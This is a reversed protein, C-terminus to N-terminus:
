AFHRHGTFLCGLLQVTLRTTRGDLDLPPNLEVVEASSLLGSAHIMTFAEQVQLPTLGHPVPTGTAPAYLSDISDVDFSVHLRANAAAARDLARGIYYPMGKEALRPMTVQLITSKDLLTQEAPDMDRVGILTINSEPVYLNSLSLPPCDQSLEHSLAQELEQRLAHGCVASLPMGHVHGSITTTQTNYDAHADFWLVHLPRAEHYAQASAAFITGMAVAHDGGMVLPITDSPHQTHLRRLQSFIGRVWAMNEHIFKARPMDRPSADDGHGHCHVQNSPDFPPGEVGCTEVVTYGAATVIQEFGEAMIAAPAQSSGSFCAGVESPAKIIAINKNM